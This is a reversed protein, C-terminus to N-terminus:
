RIRTAGRYETAQRRVSLVNGRTSVLIIHRARKGVQPGFALAPITLDFEVIQDWGLM